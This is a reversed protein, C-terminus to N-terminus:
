SAEKAERRAKRSGNLAFRSNRRFKADVGKLSRTRSVTPRKIGNRHAKRTQNHATHNKSKAMKGDDVQAQQIRHRPTLHTTDRGTPPQFVTCNTGLTQDSNASGGKACLKLTTLKTPARPLDHMM